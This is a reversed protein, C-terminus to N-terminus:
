DDIFLNFLLPSLNCGQKLGLTTAIPEILVNQLKISQKVNGYLSKLITLFPGEFGYNWLMKFLLPRCVSDYAKRLDIFASFLQRGKGKVIKNILTNVVFTHDSTRHGKLFGIQNEKLMEYKKVTKELRKTIYSTGRKTLVNRKKLVNCISLALTAQLAHVTRWRRNLSM